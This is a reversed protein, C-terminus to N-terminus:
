DELTNVAPPGSLVVRIAITTSPRWQDVPQNWWVLSRPDTPVLARKQAELLQMPGIQHTRISELLSVLSQYSNDLRVVCEVRGAAGLTAPEGRLVIADIDPRAVLANATARPDDSEVTVTLLNREALAWARELSMGLASDPADVGDPGIAVLPQRAPELTDPSQLRSEDDIADSEEAKSLALVSDGTAEPQEQESLADISQRLAEDASPASARRGLTEFSPEAGQRAEDVLAFTDDDAFSALETDNPNGSALTAPQSSADPAAEDAPENTRLDGPSEDRLALTDSDTLQQQNQQLMAPGLIVGVGVIMVIAAAAALRPGGIRALVGRKVTIPADLLADREAVRMADKVLGQPAITTGPQGWRRLHERDARAGLLFRSLEPDQAVTAELRRASADDLEGEIYALIDEERFQNDM